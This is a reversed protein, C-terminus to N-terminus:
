LKYRKMDEELAPNPVAKRRPRNQEREKDSQYISAIEERKYYM